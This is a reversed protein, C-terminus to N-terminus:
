TRTRRVSSPYLSWRHYHLTITTPSYYLSLSLRSSFLVLRVPSGTHDVPLRFGPFKSSLFIKHFSPRRLTLFPPFSLYKCLWKTYWHLPHWRGVRFTCLTRGPRDQARQRVRVWVEKSVWPSGVGTSPVGGARQDRVGRFGHPTLVCRLGGHWWLSRVTRWFPLYCRSTSWGHTNKIYYRIRWPVGRKM